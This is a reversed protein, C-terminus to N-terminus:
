NLFVTIGMTGEHRFMNYENNIKEGQYFSYKVFVGVWSDAPMFLLETRAGLRGFVSPSDQYFENKYHKQINERYISSFELGAYGTFNKFLPQAYDVALWTIKTFDITKHNKYSAQVRFDKVHTGVTVEYDLSSEDGYTYGAGNALMSPDVGATIFTQSIASYSLLLVTLFLLTKKM